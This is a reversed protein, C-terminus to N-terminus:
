KGDKEGHRDTFGNRQDFLKRAIMASTHCRFIGLHVNKNNVQASSKWKDRYRQVGTAIWPEKRPYKSANKSNQYQTAERLNEIRNDTKDGNIHDLGTKPWKGFNMAWIIRHAMFKDKGKRIQIYGRSSTCGAPKFLHASSRRRGGTSEGWHLVGDKLYLNDIFWKLSDDTEKESNEFTAGNIKDAM